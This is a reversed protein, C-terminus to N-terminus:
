CWALKFAIADFQNRFSVRIIYDYSDSIDNDFFAWSRLSAAPRIEPTRVWEQSNIWQELKTMRDDGYIIAVFFHKEGDVIDLECIEYDPFIDNHMPFM